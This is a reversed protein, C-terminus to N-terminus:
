TTIPSSISKLYNSFYNNEDDSENLNLRFPSYPTRVCILKINNKETLVKIMNLYKIFREKNFSTNKFNSITKFESIQKKTLTLTDYLFGNIWNISKEQKNTEVIIIHKIIPNSFSNKLRVNNKNLIKFFCKLCLPKYDAM